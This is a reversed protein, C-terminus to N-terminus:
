FLPEADKQERKRQLEAKREAAEAERDALWQAYGEHVAAVAEDFALATNNDGVTAVAEFRVNEYNGINYLRAYSVQTIM